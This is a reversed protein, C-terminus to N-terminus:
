PSSKLHAIAAQRMVSISPVEGLWIEFAAAGQHILMELGDLVQYGHQQALTLFKTPRPTYILDYVIAHAPLLAIMDSSLPSEHVQPHMGVPTTNVLLGTHPLLDDLAQWAHIQFTINLETNLLSQQLNVLKSRDRGVVHINQCGLQACAAIVARAAGGGGLICANAPAWDGNYALLPALFGQVDTNTGFWAEEQRWVTNVAGVAQALPSVQQLYPIVSQKHPITVNFGRWGLAAMGLLAAELNSPEVKLPLYVYELESHGLAVGRSFLAANHLAPSLSHEIPCGMVGLLQTSGAIEIM